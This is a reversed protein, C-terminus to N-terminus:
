IMASIVRGVVYAAVAEPLIVLLAFPVMFFVGVGVEPSSLIAITTWSIVAVIIGGLFSALYRRRFWGAYVCILGAIFL